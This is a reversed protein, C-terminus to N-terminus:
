YLDTIDTMIIIILIILKVLKGKNIKTKKLNLCFNYNTSTKITVYYYASMLLQIWIFSSRITKSRTIEFSTFSWKLNGNGLFCQKSQIKVVSFVDCTFIHSFINLVTLFFLPIFVFHSFFCSSLPKQSILNTLPTQYIISIAFM